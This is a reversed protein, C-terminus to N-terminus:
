KLYSRGVLRGMGLTNGANVMALAALVMTSIVHENVIPTAVVPLKAVWVIMLTIGAAVAAARTAIGLMLCLGLGLLGLLFLADVWPQGALSAFIGGRLLEATPSGGFIWAKTAPTAFGLGFTRDVYTFLFLWGMAIRAIAWVYDVTRSPREQEAGEDTQATSDTTVM